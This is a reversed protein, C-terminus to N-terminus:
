QCFQLLTIVCTKHVNYITEKHVLNFVHDKKNNSGIVTVLNIFSLVNLIKIKLKEWMLTIINLM